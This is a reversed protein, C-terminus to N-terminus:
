IKDGAEVEMEAQTERRWDGTKKRWRRTETETEASQSQPAEPGTVTPLDGCGFLWAWGSRRRAPSVIAKVTGSGPEQGTEHACM